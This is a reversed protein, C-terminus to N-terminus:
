DRLLSELSIKDKQLITLEGETELKLWTRLTSVAEGRALDRNHYDKQDKSVAQFLFTEHRPRMSIDWFLTQQINSGHHRVCMVQVAM